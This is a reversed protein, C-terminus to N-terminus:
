HAALVSLKAPVPLVLPIVHVVFLGMSINEMQVNWVAPLREMLSANSVAMLSTAVNSANAM